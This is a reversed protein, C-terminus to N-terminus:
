CPLRNWELHRRRDVIEATETAPELREFLEAEAQPQDAKPQAESRETGILSRTSTRMEIGIKEEAQSLWAPNSLLFLLREHFLYKHALARDFAVVGMDIIIRRLRPLGGRTDSLSQSPEIDLKAAPVVLWDPRMEVRHILCNEGGLLEAFNHWPQHEMAFSQGHEHMRRGSVTISIVKLAGKPETIPELQILFRQPAGILERFCPM